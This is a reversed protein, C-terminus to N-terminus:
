TFRAPEITSRTSRVSAREAARFALPALAEGGGTVPAMGIPGVPVIVPASPDSAAGYGGQGPYGGGPHGGAGYGGGYGGGPYGGAVVPAPGPRGGGGGGGGRKNGGGRLVAVLLLGIAVVGAAIGGILAIPLPKKKAKLTLISKEDVASARKSTSDFVVVRTVTAEGTGELIQENDPVDFYAYSDNSETAKGLMKQQVLNKMMTQAAAVGTGQAKTGPPVFYAEARSNTGGWCFEGYVRFKGGPYLPHQQAEDVTRQVDIALPWQTPDIGIPIDKFAGDPLVATKTGTFTLNFTQNITPNLCSLKWKVVWMNAFRSRVTKVINPGRAAGQGARVVSFFGGYDPNAMSQMFQVDNNEMIGNQLGSNSNPFLVSIIPLPLKPSSTNDEPFRGNNAYKKLQEASAANTMADRRGAGNSLVVFAQHLPLTNTDGYNGLDNFGMTLISRLTSFLPRSASTSAATGAALVGSVIAAREKYSKWKSDATFAKDRDDFIVVRVLDQPAMQQLFERVVARGDDYRSGMGNSADLAILWATGMGVDKSDKWLTKSVFKAPVEPGEVRVLLNPATDPFNFPEWISNPKEMQEGWCDYLADTSRITSCPAIVDSLTKFQGMELVTTLTPSGEKIGARPDVRLLRAQPAAHASPAVAFVLAFLSTLLSLFPLRARFSPHTM